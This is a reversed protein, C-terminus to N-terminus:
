PWCISLPATVAVGPASTFVARPQSNPVAPMVCTRTRHVAYVDPVTFTAQTAVATAASGTTDAIGDGAAFRIWTCDAPSVVAVVAYTVPTWNPVIRVNAFATRCAPAVPTM